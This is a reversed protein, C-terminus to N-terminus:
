IYRDSEEPESEGDVITSLMSLFCKNPEGKCNFYCQECSHKICWNEMAYYLTMAATREEDNTEVTTFTSTYEKTKIKM